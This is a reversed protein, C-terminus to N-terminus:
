KKFILKLGNIRSVVSADMMEDGIRLIIGGKIKEDVTNELNVQMAGYKKAVFNEVGKLTEVDLKKASVVQAEVIGNHENYLATFKEIIKKALALQNNKQLLKVFNAVVADAEQSSKNEVAAYLAKAYQTATIKM